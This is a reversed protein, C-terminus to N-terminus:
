PAAGAHALADARTACGRIETVLGDATSVVVWRVGDDLPWAGDSHSDPRFAVVVRDGAVFADDIRGTMGNAINRRMADVIASANECNWPGDEVARWRAGPALVAELPALDGRALADWVDRVMEVSDM